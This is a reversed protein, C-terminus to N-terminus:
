TLHSPIKRMREMSQEGRLLQWSKCSAQRINEKEVRVSNGRSEPKFLPSWGLNQKQSTDESHTFLRNISKTKATKM